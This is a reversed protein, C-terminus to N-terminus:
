VYFLHEEVFGTKKIFSLPLVFGALIGVMNRLMDSLDADRSTLIQVTEVIFGLVMTMVFVVFYMIVKNSLQKSISLRSSIVFSIIGFAITHSSNLAERWWLNGTPMPVFFLGAFLVLLSIIYFDNRVFM